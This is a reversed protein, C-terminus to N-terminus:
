EDHNDSDYRHELAELAELSISQELVDLIEESGSYFSIIKLYTFLTLM